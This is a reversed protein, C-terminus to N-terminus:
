DEFYIYGDKDVRLPFELMEKSSKVSLRDVTHRSCGIYKRIKEKYNPDKIRAYICIDTDGLFAYKGQADFGRLKDKTIFTFKEDDSLESDIGEDIVKLCLKRGEPTKCDLSIYGEQTKM